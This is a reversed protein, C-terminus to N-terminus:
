TIESATTDIRSSAFGIQTGAQMVRYYVTGPDVRAGADRMLDSETRFFERRTLLALGAVWALLVVAAVSGRRIM